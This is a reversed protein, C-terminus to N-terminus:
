YYYFKIFYYICQKIYRNLEKLKYFPIENINFIVINNEKNKDILNNSIMTLFEKKQSINLNHINKSIYDKYKKVLAKNSKNNKRRNGFKEKNKKEKKYIEKKM